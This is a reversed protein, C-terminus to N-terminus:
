DKKLQQDLKQKINMMIVTLNGFELVQKSSLNPFIANETVFNIYRVLKDIDSQNIGQQIQKLDTQQTM